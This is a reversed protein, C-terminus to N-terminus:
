SVREARRIKIQQMIKDMLSGHACYEVISYYTNKSEWVEYQELIHKQKMEWMLM